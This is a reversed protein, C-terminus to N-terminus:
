LVRGRGGGFGELDAADDLSARVLCTFTLFSANRRDLFSACFLFRLTDVNDEHWLAYAYRRGVIVEGDGVRNM